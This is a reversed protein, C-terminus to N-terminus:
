ACTNPNGFCSCGTLGGGGFNCVYYAEECSCVSFVAGNFCTATCGGWGPPYGGKVSKMEDKSLMTGLDKYKMLM